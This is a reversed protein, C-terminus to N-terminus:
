EGYLAKIEAETLARRFVRVDDVAGPFNGGSDDASTENCYSGSQPRSGLQLYCSEPYSPISSYTRFGVMTGNVYLRATYQSVGTKALVAAYHRWFGIQFAVSEHPDADPSVPTESNVLGFFMRGGNQYLTFWNGVGIVNADNSLEAKLWVSITFESGLRPNPTAIIGGLGAEGGNYLNLAAKARGQRDGVYERANSVVPNLSKDSGSNATNQDLALYLAADSPVPNKPPPATSRERALALVEADSIARVFVRVDDLAGNFRGNEAPNSGQCNEEGEPTSGMFFRCDTPSLLVSDFTRVGALVGDFYLRAESSAAGTRRVIGVYHHWVGRDLPGPVVPDSASDVPSVHFVPGFRVQENLLYFGFWNGQGLINAPNNFNGDHKMWFSFTFDTGLALNETTILGGARTDNANALDVAKAARDDRDGVYRFINRADVGISGDMGENATNGDFSLQLLADTPIPNRLRFLQPSSSTAIFVENTLVNTVETWVGGVLRDSTELVMGGRILPWSLRLRSGDRRAALGPGNRQVLRSGAFRVKGLGVRDGSGIGSFGRNGGNKLFTLRVQNAFM